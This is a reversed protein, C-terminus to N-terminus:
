AFGFTPPAPPWGNYVPDWNKQVVLGDLLVAVSVNVAVMFSVLLPHWPSMEVAVTVNAVRRAPLVPGNVGSGLAVLTGTPRILGLSVVVPVAVAIVWYLMPLLSTSSTSTSIM